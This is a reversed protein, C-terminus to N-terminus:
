TSSGVSEEGDSLHIHIYKDKRSDAITCIDGISVGTPPRVHCLLVQMGKRAFYGYFLKATGLPRSGRIIYAAEGESPLPLSCSVSIFIGVARSPLKLIALQKFVLSPM